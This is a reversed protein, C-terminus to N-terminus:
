KLTEIVKDRYAEQGDIFADCTLDCGANEVDLEPLLAQIDKLAKEVLKDRLGLDVPNNNEAMYALNHLISKM